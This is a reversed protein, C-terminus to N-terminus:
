AKATGAVEDYMRSGDQAPRHKITVLCQRGAAEAIQQRVTLDDNIGLTDVYFMKIRYEADETVWLRFKRKTGILGGPIAALESPDVDDQAAVFSFTHEIVDTNEKGMKKIEFSPEVTVLYTGVPLPKPPQIDRAPKNLIEEFTSM